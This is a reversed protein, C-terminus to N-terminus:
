KSKACRFGYDFQAGTTIDSNRSAARIKSVDTYWSGGRIVKAEGKAPGQPNKQPSISYYNKDYWDNCWEWVNGSMDYLGYGNAENTKVAQTPLEAESTLSAGAAEARDFVARKQPSDDGWPFKKGILGGRAAYEWEAETPLRKKAWKAYANADNWSVNVVPHNRRESTAYTRWDYEESSKEADTKYNTANVFKEFQANTVPTIDLYFSDVYVEHIPQENEYGDSSGIKTWGGKIMVMDPNTADPVQSGPPAPMHATAKVYGFYGGTALLILIAAIAIYKLAGSSAKPKENIITASNAQNTSTTNARDMSSTKPRNHDGTSPGTMPPFEADFDAAGSEYAAHTLEAAFEGASAFRNAPEKELARLVVKSVQDPITSVFTSPSPPAEVIHKVAVGTPTPASFPLKGTLMEFAVIGLSYVDSRLNIESEGRCQEPSMYNLTGVITGARTISNDQKGQIVMKAIGFDFVKVTHKGRDAKIMINDPKLDRHIIHKSHADDLAACIQSMINATTGPSLHNKKRILQTLNYGQIFEMVLYLMNNARGFDTVKVANPHDILAAARAERLFREAIENNNSLQPNIIKIAVDNNIFTHRARFVAGMGGLGLLSLVQYKGDITQNILSNVDFDSLKNGDNPCVEDSDPFSNQCKTCYKM